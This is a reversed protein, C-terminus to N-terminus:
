RDQKWFKQKRIDYKRRLTDNQLITAEYEARATQQYIQMKTDFMAMAQHILKEELEKKRLESMFSKEDFHKM